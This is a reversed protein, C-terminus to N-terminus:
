PSSQNVGVQKVRETNHMLSGVIVQVTSSWATEVRMGMRVRRTINSHERPANQSSAPQEAVPSVGSGVYVVAARTRAVLGVAAASAMGVSGAVRVCLGVGVAVALAAGVFVDVAGDVGVGAGVAAGVAV